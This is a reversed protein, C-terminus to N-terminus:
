SCPPCMKLPTEASAGRRHPNFSPTYKTMRMVIENRTRAQLVSRKNFGTLGWFVSAGARICNEVPPKRKVAKQLCSVM